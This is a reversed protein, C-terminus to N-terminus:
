PAQRYRARGIQYADEGYIDNAVIAPLGEVELRLVAEPGLDDYAVLHSSRVSRAILAAVGGTAAFYVARYQKLADRVAQSRNGKGLMGKLGAQLMAPVYPDMRGATTPGSSGIPKGPRAPSPGMHYIIQGRPDFPLPKGAQLAQLFRKHAADRAVYLVGSIRVRDGAHLTELVEDTLPARIEIVPENSPSM